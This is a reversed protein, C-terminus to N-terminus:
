KSNDAFKKQLAKETRYIPIFVFVLIIVISVVTEISKEIPVVLSVASLLMLIFGSKILEIASYRQSFDWREKSKMSGSTRYGYLGNIKKPPFSYLLCGTLVFLAGCLLPLQLLQTTWEM